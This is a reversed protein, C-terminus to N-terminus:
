LQFVDVANIDKLAIPVKVKPWSTYLGQCGRISRKRQCFFIDLMEAGHLLKPHFVQHKTLIDSSAAIKNESCTVTHTKKYVM